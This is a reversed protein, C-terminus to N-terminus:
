RRRFLGKKPAPAIMAVIAEVKRFAEADGGAVNASAVVAGGKFFLFGAFWDRGEHAFWTFSREQDADPITGIHLDETEQFGSSSVFQRLMDATGRERMPEPIPSYVSINIALDEDNPPTVEYYSGPNGVVAWGDPLVLEFVGKCELIPM